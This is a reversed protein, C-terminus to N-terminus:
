SQDKALSANCLLNERRLQHFKTNALVNYKDWFSMSDREKKSVLIHFADKFFQREMMEKLKWKDKLSRVLKM